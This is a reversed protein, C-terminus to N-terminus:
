KESLVCFSWNKYSPNKNEKLNNLAWKHDKEVATVSLVTLLTSHTKNQKQVISKKEM